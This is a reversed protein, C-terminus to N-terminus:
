KAEKRILDALQTASIDTEGLLNFKILAYTDIATFILDFSDYSRRTMNELYHEAFKVIRCMDDFSTKFISDPKLENNATIFGYYMMATERTTFEQAQVILWKCPATFQEYETYTEAPFTTHSPKTGYCPYVAMELTKIRANFEKLVTDLRHASTM